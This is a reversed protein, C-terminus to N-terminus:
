FCHSYNHKGYKENFYEKETTKQIRYNEAKEFRENTSNPFVKINSFILLSHDSRM